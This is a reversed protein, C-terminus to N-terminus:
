ARVVGIQSAAARMRADAAAIDPRRTLLQSPLGSPISPPAVIGGKPLHFAAPVEGVLFALANFYTARTRELSLLQARTAELETEARALDLDTTEGGRVRADILRRNEKRVELSRRLVGIEADIFRLNYYTRALEARLSLRTAAWDSEAAEFDAQAVEVAQRVRGWLDIEYELNLAARFENYTRDPPVFISSASDRRNEAFGSGTVRPYQDARALGLEARTRDYRALAVALSPNDADLKAILRNLGADQFCDWWRGPPLLDYSRGNAYSSGESLESDGLESPDVVCGTFWPM